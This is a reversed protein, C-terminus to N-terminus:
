YKTSKLTQIEVKRLGEKVRGELLDISFIIDKEEKGEILLFLKPPDKDSKPNKNDPYYQGRSTISCGTERKVNSLTTNKSVEWRILKPLDNIYVHASFTSAKDANDNRIIEYKLKPVEIDAVVDNSVDDMDVTGGDIDNNVTGKSIRKFDEKEKNNNKNRQADLNDLGKGGLGKSITFKGSKLGVEFKNVMEDLISIKEPSNEALEEDRMAKKLIYAADLEDSLLLTIANGRRTGRATRGTTHVYQSFKNVANYIIVLSVEPVNLGRSLVETCLLISNKTKKFKELNSVREQYSRGAHISFVDYDYKELNAAVADCTQQSSVFIIIKKDIIEDEVQESGKSQSSERKEVFNDLIEILKFFKESDNNLIEFAQHVNENVMTKSDITITLPNHLVRKVFAQLKIPFTASFLVCQKDPRITKMIQTVQPEFGMDFLRDAEDLIVSTIRKTNLLKGTNLTLLDIFRGPTAVVIEIGRKFEYIQNKLESGGTCCISRISPDSKIFKQIEENIQIALERTPAIILGLPGTESNSLPRQAKVHRILPLAYSITKGSGTKSIGIVDRGTMIAPIAQSQIPTPTDYQLTKTLLYMVDSSIGLQSWRTIPRPCNKGSIKINGLNLRLEDVAENSMEHVAEPEVYFSKPFPVLDEKKFNMHQVIKSAKLKAVKKYRLLAENDDDSGNEVLVNDLTDNDDILSGTLTGNSNKSTNISNMFSELPDVDETDNSSKNINKSIENTKTVESSGPMYLPLQKDSDEEDSDDFQIKRRKPKKAKKLKTEGVSQESEKLRLQDRERKKKKWEQLKLQRELLKAETETLNIDKNMSTANESAEKVPKDYGGHDDDKKKRWKALKARREEFLREKETNTEHVYPTDTMIIYELLCYRM